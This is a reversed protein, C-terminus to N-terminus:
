VEDSGGDPSSIIPLFGGQSVPQPKKHKQILFIEGRTKLLHELGSKLINAAFWHITGVGGIDLYIPYMSPQFAELQKLLKWAAKEDLDGKIIISLRNRNTRVNMQFRKLDIVSM